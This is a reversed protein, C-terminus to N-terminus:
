RGPFTCLTARARTAYGGCVFAANAKNVDVATINLGGSLVKPASAVITMTLTSGPTGTGTAVTVGNSDKAAYSTAGVGGTQAVAFSKYM